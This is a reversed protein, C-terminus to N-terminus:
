IESVLQRSLKFIEQSQHRMMLYRKACFETGFDHSWFHAIEQTMKQEINVCTVNKTPYLPMSKNLQTFFTIYWWNQPLYLLTRTLAWLEEEKREKRGKGTGRANLGGVVFKVHFEVM